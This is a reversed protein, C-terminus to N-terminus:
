TATSLPQWSRRGRLSRWWCRIAPRSPSVSQARLSKGSGFPRRIRRGGNCSSRRSRPTPARTTPFSAAGPASRVVSAPLWNAARASNGSPRRSKPMPRRISFKKRAIVRYPELQLDGTQQFTRYAELKWQEGALWALVVTENKKLNQLQPGLGAWRGPGAGYMRLTGRLRDDEPSAYALLRKFKNVSAKAGDRRAELLERVYDDPKRALVQAVARKNMTTMNHGRANIAALFRAGQDVSTIAGHTLEELKLNIATRERVALERAAETFARDLRIGRANIAVDQLQYRRELASFRKLKTSQWVARTTVVDLKCREYLLQLKAPDDDWVATPKSKRQPKPRSVALMAKRAVPDKRYPLGLAQALLDLEAPYGNALALRQSCHQIEVPIPPFGYRPV